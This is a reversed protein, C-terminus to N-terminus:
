IRGGAPFCCRVSWSSARRIPARFAYALARGFRSWDLQELKKLAERVSSRNVGLQLALEREPPLRDGARITGNLIKTQIQDAVADPLVGRPDQALPEEPKVM